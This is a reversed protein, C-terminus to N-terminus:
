CDHAHIDEDYCNEGQSHVTLLPVFHTIRVKKVGVGYERCNFISGRDFYDFEERRPALVTAVNLSIHIVEFFRMLDIGVQFEIFEVTLLIPSIETPLM